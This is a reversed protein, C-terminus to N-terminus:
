AWPRWTMRVAPQAAFQVVTREAFGARSFLRLSPENDPKIYADVCSALGRAAVQAVGARAIATGAGRGRHEAAVALSVIANPHRPATEDCVFRIQGVPTGATEAIFFLSHPRELQDAFWREHEAWAIAATSFSSARTLPDNAWAFVTACDDAVVPRLRINM